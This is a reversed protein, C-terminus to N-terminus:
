HLDDGSLRRVPLGLAELPAVTEDPAGVLVIQQREPRLYADAVRQVDAATVAAIRERYRDLYDPPYDYFALQMRQVVVAHPDTFGFIFSNVLSDRAVQLEEPAVTTSRLDDMISRILTLAEVVSANKTETGAM